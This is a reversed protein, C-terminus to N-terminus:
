NVKIIDLITDGETITHVVDMGTSVKGFISYRGDLHPTPSHTVFWQASETHPGASAMGVYGESNYYTKSFESNITYNLSGYGDGRTCGTQIVFNPVVRHFIKGDYFDDVVLESFNSVSQPASTLLPNIHFVGKTTKVIFYTSDSLTNVEEWNMPRSDLSYDLNQTTDNLINLAEFVSKYTEIDRPLTLSKLAQRLFTDNEIVTAFNPQSFVPTIEYLAGVDKDDVIKEVFELLKKRAYKPSANFVADFNDSTIIKALSSAIATKLIPQTTTDFVSELLTYSQIDHGLARLLASEIFKGPKAKLLNTVEFRAANRSKSFYYPIQQFYASYLRAATLTDQSTKAKQRISNYLKDGTASAYYQCVTKRIHPNPDVLLQSMLTDNYPFAQLARISNIKVRYDDDLELANKLIQYVDVNGNAHRLALALAMKVDTNKEKVFQNAIRFQHPTLNLNKTRSLYHAAYLRGESPISENLIFGVMKATGDESHIGRLGFRYIAKAQNIILHSDTPLYTNTTAIFKLISEDGIKGCSELVAGNTPNDVSATDRQKFATILFDTNDINGQQGLAYILMERVAGITENSLMRNLIDESRSDKISALSEAVLYRETINESDAYSALSDINQSVRFNILKQVSIDEFSVSISTNEKTNAPVCSQELAILCVLLFM